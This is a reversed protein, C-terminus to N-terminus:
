LFVIGGAPGPKFEKRIPTTSVFVIFLGLANSGLPKLYPLHFVIIEERFYNKELCIFRPNTKMPQDLQKM